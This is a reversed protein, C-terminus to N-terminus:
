YYQFIERGEHSRTRNLSFCNRVQGRPMGDGEHSRTRYLSFNHRTHTGASGASCKTFKKQFDKINAKM